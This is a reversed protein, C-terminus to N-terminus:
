SAASAVERMLAELKAFDVPKTLQALFGAERSRRVDEETGYGTLAIAPVPGHRAVVQRMLDLGSGDPLGVDSVILDFRDSDIAKEAASLCDAPVVTHGLERMLRTMVRLTDPEDEVLLVKLRTEAGHGKAPGGRAGEGGTEVSAAATALLVRFTAGRGRGRSEATITGGHADVIGKCVALGLGVGGFRRHLSDAGQQFPDFIRDLMEPEIGIGEDAVEIVIRPGDEGPENRTRVTVSGWEPTFKIANSLLNWFVQQLRAPDAKVYHAAAELRLRVRPERASVDKARRSIELALEILRHCDTTEVYLSLKGRGIRTVDLLDDILRAQLRVNRRVMELTARLEDTTLDGDRELLASTELLIPNLPTRLEHSLVALFQTKAANAAQAEILLREREEMARRSNSVDRFVLVTGLIRGDTALIPAASDEIPLAAGDRRILATHNGLGVVTGERLVRAVPDEVPLGTDECVIAFVEGLPRGSADAASWGTLTEAVANIITVRGRDDTAIVADGISALTVLLRDSELRESEYARRAAFESAEVRRYLERVRGGMFALASGTLAFVTASIRAESRDFFLSGRPEAVLLAVAALSVAVTVLSPGFGGYWATIVVAPFFTIYPVRDGLWPGLAMRVVTAIAVITVAVLYRRIRDRSVPSM